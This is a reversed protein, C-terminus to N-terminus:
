KTLRYAYYTSSKVREVNWGSIRLDSDFGVFYLPRRGLWHQLYPLYQAAGAVVISRHGFTHAVYASYALSTAYGWDSVVIADDPTFSTVEAAFTPGFLDNRQNFILAREPACTALAVALSLGLSYWGLSRARLEFLAALREFGVGIAIAACWFAFLYYREPQQLDSYSETYPVPFLGALVIAIGPARRTAVLAVAGGAAILSAVGYAQAMQAGLQQAFYPYRSISAFGAFGGGVHFDAGTVFRAFNHWNSPDGYNWIPLGPPLGLAVNPDLHHADIWASRLPLYAYPLLGLVLGGVVLFLSRPRYWNSRGDVLIAFSPLFLLAIGHTACALGAAVSGFFLDRESGRDYWRLAFWFALARFLLAVDQVEARTAVRWTVLAFAFGLSCLASTAPELGFRRAVLYLLSTSVAVALSCMVNLRWALEGFPFAHVFLYGLLTFAPCGPPHAIGFIVAVTQLEATDWDSYSPPLTAV